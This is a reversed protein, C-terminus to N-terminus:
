SPGAFLIEFSSANPSARLSASASRSELRCRVSYWRRLISSL